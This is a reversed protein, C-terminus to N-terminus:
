KEYVVYGSEKRVKFYVLAEYTDGPLSMERIYENPSSKYHRLWKKSITSMADGLDVTNFFDYKNGPLEKWPRNHDYGTLYRASTSRGMIGSLHPVYFLLNTNPDGVIIERKYPDKHHTYSAINLLGDPIKYKM